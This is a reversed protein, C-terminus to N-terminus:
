VHSEERPIPEVTRGIRATSRDLVTIVILLAAGAVLVWAIHHLGPTDATHGYFAGNLASAVIAGLYAFTRLLGSSSALREADAQYYVANQNALNLLGQPIGVVATVAVLLAIPARGDLLLLLLAALLQTVAGVLLKRRIQPLRGTLGSVAIAIGSMPILILGAATASLHRGDEAWQTFGYLFAYLAVTTLLTRVYTTLLAVNGGLLRLDLFPDDARLEWWTLAAGIAATVALLYLHTVSPNMLLLLLAVLTGAFLGMGPYDLRKAGGPAVRESPLVVLAVVFAAVALPINVALTARWGGLNILLGGLPPGIVVITQTSVALVALVGSPSALGTRRSESRILHMSAPYGACTGFGLIVRAVVLVALNPAFTGLIGATGTLVAGALFLRKPGYIDVLRGVVPQGIATALYLASVLWATSSAPVGFADGIPVLSVAIISSNIPNMVSGLIMPAILKRDFASSETSM